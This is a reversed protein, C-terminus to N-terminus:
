EVVRGDHLTVVRDARAAIDPDHTVMVITLGNKHQEALLDLIEAGTKEDINGTPEDALLVEPENMLARAIAM